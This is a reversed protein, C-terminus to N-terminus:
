LVRLIPPDAWPLRPLADFRADPGPCAADRDDRCGKPDRLRCAHHHDFCVAPLIRTTTNPQTCRSSLISAFSVTHLRTQSVRVCRLFFSETVDRWV